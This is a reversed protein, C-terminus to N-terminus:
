RKKLGENLTVGKPTFRRANNLEFKIERTTEIRANIVGLPMVKFM